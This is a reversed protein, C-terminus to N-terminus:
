TSPLRDSVSVCASPPRALDLLGAPAPLPVPFHASLFAHALARAPIPISPSSIFPSRPGRPVQGASRFDAASPANRALQASPVPVPAPLSPAGSLRMVTAKAIAAGVRASSYRYCRARFQARDADTQPDLGQSSRTAANQRQELWALSWLYRVAAPGLAGFCSGVFPFFSFGVAAYPEEHKRFKQAEAQQMGPNDFKDKEPNWTENWLGKGDMMAVIKVDVVFQTRAVGHGKAKDTIEIDKSRVLMDGRKKSNLHTCKRKMAADIDVVSHGLRRSEFAIASVVVDHGKGWSRGAWKNCNLMHAGTIDHQQGCACRGLLGPPPSFPLGLILKLYLSLQYKSLGEASTPLLSGLFATPRHRITQTPPIDFRVHSGKVEQERLHALRARQSPNAQRIKHLQDVSPHVQLCWKSLTHQRAAALLTKRLPPIAAQPNPKWFLDLDPLQLGTPCSIPGANRVLPPPDVLLLTAGTAMMQGHAFIVPDTFLSASPSKTLLPQLPSATTATNLLHSISAAYYAPIITKAMSTLGLGGQDESDRLQHKALQITQPYTLPMGPIITELPISALLNADFYEAFTEEVHQDFRRSHEMMLQPSVSRAWYMLKQNSSYRLIHLFFTGHPFPILKALDAACDAVIKRIVQHIFHATGIPVGVVV